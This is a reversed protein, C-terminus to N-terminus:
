EFDLALNVAISNPKSVAFTRRVYKEYLSSEIGHNEYGYLKNMKGLIVLEVLGGADSIVGSHIAAKCISSEM